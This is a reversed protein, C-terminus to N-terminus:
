GDLFMGAARELAGRGTAASAGDEWADGGVNFIFDGDGADSTTNVPM